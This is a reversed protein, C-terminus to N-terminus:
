KLRHNTQKRESIGCKLRTPALRSCRVVSADPLFSCMKMKPYIEDFNQYLFIKGQGSREINCAFQM